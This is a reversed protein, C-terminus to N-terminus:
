ILDKILINELTDDFNSLLKEINICIIKNRDLQDQLLDIDIYRDDERDYGNNNLLERIKRIERNYNNKMNELQNLFYKKINDINSKIKDYKIIIFEGRKIFTELIKNFNEKYDSYIMRRDLIIGIKNENNDLNIPRVPFCEMKSYNRTIHLHIAYIDAEKEDWDEEDFPDIDKYIESM